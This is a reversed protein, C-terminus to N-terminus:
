SDFHRRAADADRRIQEALAELGDYSQEDRLKRLFEVRVLRGYADGQWDLVHVELLLRGDAEVAPRTGLSAVAPLPEPALGWVRTVFIGALAPRAFPVRLNLTPFGLTRGLKRGHIVRGSMRYGRGLLLRAREFDGAGLADRVASSSVREGDEALTPMSAVEFGGAPALAQLLALDGVRRAGFRFDDGVLVWRARLGAVVMQEVFREASCAALAPGFPAICTRDVGAEALAELKDRLTAIRAPMEAGPRHRAFFERPHPEFTLVCAPLARADAERRLRALMAQHGRHVGDFNGITLVCERREHAPPLRRFVQM